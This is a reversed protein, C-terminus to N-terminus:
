HKILQKRVKLVPWVNEGMCEEWKNRGELEFVEEAGQQEIIASTFNWKQEVPSFYMRLPPSASNVEEGSSCSVVLRM